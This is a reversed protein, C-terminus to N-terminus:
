IAVDIRDLMAEWLQTWGIIFIRGLPDLAESSEIHALAEELSMFRVSPHRMQHLQTDGTVVINLRDPLPRNLSAFTKRGMIVTSRLTLQKFRQM